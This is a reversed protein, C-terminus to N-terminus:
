GVARRDASVPRGAEILLAALLARVKAEPIEVDLGAATRATIPGLVSFYM